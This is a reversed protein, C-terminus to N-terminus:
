PDTDDLKVSDRIEEYFQKLRQRARHGKQRITNADTRQGSLSEVIQQWSRGKIYKERLLDQEKPTLKQWGLRIAKVDESFIMESIVENSPTLDTPDLKPQEIRDQKRRLERVINFCTTRLWPFPKEIMEGAAIRKMAVSYAEILVDKDEYTGRLRFQWLKHEVFTWLARAEETQDTFLIELAVNFRQKNEQQQSLQMLLALCKTKFWAFHVEDSTNFDISGDSHACLKTFIEEATYMGVLNFSELSDHIFFWLANLKEPSTLMTVSKKLEVTSSNHFVSQQIEEERNQISSSPNGDKTSTEVKGNPTSRIETSERSETGIQTQLFVEVYPQMSSELSNAESYEPASVSPSYSHEEQIFNNALNNLSEELFQKDEIEENQQQLLLFEEVSLVPIEIGKFNEPSQTVVGDLEWAEVCAVEIASEFDKLKLLRASQLITKDVPCTSAIHEVGLAVDDYAEAEALIACISLIKDQGTTTIYGRIVGEQLSKWLSRARESFNARNLLAELLLDTDILYAM